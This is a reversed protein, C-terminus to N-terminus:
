QPQHLMEGLGPAASCGFSQFFRADIIKFILRFIATIPNAAQHDPMAM